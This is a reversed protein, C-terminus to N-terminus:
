APDPRNWSIELMKYPAHEVGVEQEESISQAFLDYVIFESPFDFSMFWDTFQKIGGFYDFLKLVVAPEFIYPTVTPRYQTKIPLNFTRLCTKYFPYFIEDEFSRVRSHRVFDAYNTPGVICNKSDLMVYSDSTKLSFALKCVQQLHWGSMAHNSFTSFIEVPMHKRTHINIGHPQLHEACSKNFWSLWEHPDYENIIVHLDVPELFQGVSESQSLFQQRHKNCTVVLLQKM